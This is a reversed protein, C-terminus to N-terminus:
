AGLHAKALSRDWPSFLLTFPEELALAEISLDRRGAAAFEGLAGALGPRALVERTADVAGCEAILRRLHVPDYGFEAKAADCIALLRARLAATLAVPDAEPPPAEEVPDIGLRQRAVALEEATFLADFPPQLALYEVTFAACQADVLERFTYSEVAAALTQRALRLGEDAALTPLHRVAPLPVVQRANAFTEAIRRNFRAEIETLDSRSLDPM